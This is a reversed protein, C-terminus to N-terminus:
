KKNKFQSSFERMETFYDEKTIITRKSYRKLKLMYAIITESYENWTKEYREYNFDSNSPHEASKEVSTQM